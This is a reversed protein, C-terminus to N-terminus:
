PKSAGALRFIEDAVRVTGLGDVEQRAKRSLELLQTRNRLVGATVNALHDVDVSGSTGAYVILDDKGLVECAHRQNEAISIVISPLGACMREWTTTGGAGIALDADRMLDALHPQPGWVTAGGRKRSKVELRQRHPNTVGVVIDLQLHALDSRSLADLAIETINDVDVGGFFVLVRKVDSRIRAELSRFEPALLAFRPGFLTRCNEPLMGSYRANSDAGANQDLLLDCDHHRNALDDIALIRSAYPRMRGEWAEDLAYHDVVLCDARGDALNAGTEAADQGQSTGLWQAYEDEAAVTGAPQPLVGVKFGLNELMSIQHGEHARCIFLIEAGRERLERALTRCRVIHGTGIRLSADARIVVKM